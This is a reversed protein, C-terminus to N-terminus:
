QNINMSSYLFKLDGFGMDNKCYWFNSSYFINLDLFWSSKGDNQIIRYERQLTDLCFNVIKLLRPLEIKALNFRYIYCLM